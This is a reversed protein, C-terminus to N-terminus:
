GSLQQVRQRSIGLQAALDALSAGAAREERIAVTLAERAERESQRAAEWRDAAERATM